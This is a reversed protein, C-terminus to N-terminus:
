LDLPRIAGYARFRLWSFSKFWMKSWIMCETLSVTYIVSWDLNLGQSGNEQVHSCSGSNLKQFWSYLIFSIEKHSEAYGIIEKISGHPENFVKMKRLFKKLKVKIKVSNEETSPMDEFWFSHFKLGKFEIWILCKSFWHWSLSKSFGYWDM